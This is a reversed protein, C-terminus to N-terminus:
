AIIYLNVGVDIDTVVNGYTVIHDDKGPGLYIRFGQDAVVTDDVAAHDNTGIAEPEGWICISFVTFHGLGPVHDQLVIDIYACAGCYVPGGQAGGYQSLAY